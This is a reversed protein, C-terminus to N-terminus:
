SGNILRGITCRLAQPYSRRGFIHRRNSKLMAQVRADQNRDPSYSVMVDRVESIPERRAQAEAKTKMERIDTVAQLPLPVGGAPDGGEAACLEEAGDVGVGVAVGVGLRRRCVRRHSRCPGFRGPERTVPPQWPQSSPLAQPTESPVPVRREGVCVLGAIDSRQFQHRTRRHSEQSRTFSTTWPPM